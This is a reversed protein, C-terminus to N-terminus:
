KPQAQEAQALSKEAQVRAQDRKDMEVKTQDVDRQAQALNKGATQDLNIAEDLLKQAQALKDDEEQKAPQDKPILATRQQQELYKKEAEKRIKEAMKKDKELQQRQLDAKAYDDAAKYYDTWITNMEVPKSPPTSPVDVKSDSNRLPLGGLEMTGTPNSQIGFFNTGGKLELTNSQIGKLQLDTNSLGGKLNGLLRQVREDLQRLREQEEAQFRAMEAAARAMEQQRALEENAAQEQLMQLFLNGMGSALNLMRQQNSNLGSGGGGGGAKPKCTAGFGPEGGQARCAAAFEAFNSCCADASSALLVALVVMVVVGTWASRRHSCM